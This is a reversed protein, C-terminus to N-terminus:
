ARSRLRFDRLVCGGPLGHRPRVQEVDQGILVGLLHGAAIAIRQHRGGVQVTQRRAAHREVVGVRWRREARGRAHRQQGPTIRRLLVAPGVAIRQGGVDRGEGMRHPRGAEGRGQDAAQVRDPRVLQTAIGLAQHAVVAGVPDTAMGVRQAHQIAGVIRKPDADLTGAGALRGVLHLIAQDGIRGQVPEIPLLRVLWEAERDAIQQGM